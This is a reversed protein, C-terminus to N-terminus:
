GGSALSELDLKRRINPKTRCLRDLYSSFVFKAKPCLVKHGAAKLNMGYEEATRSSKAPIWCTMDLHSTRENVVAEYGAHTGLRSIHTSEEVGALM